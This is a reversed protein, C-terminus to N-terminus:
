NKIIFFSARLILHNKKELRKPEKQNPHHNRKCNKFYTNTQFGSIKSFNFVQQQFYQLYLYFNTSITYHFNHITAFILQITVM